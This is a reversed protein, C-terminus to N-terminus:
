WASIYVIIFQIMISYNICVNKVNLTLTLIEAKFYSIVNLLLFIMKIIKCKLSKTFPKLCTSIIYCIPTCLCPKFSSVAFFFREKNYLLHAQMPGGLLCDDFDFAIVDLHRPM